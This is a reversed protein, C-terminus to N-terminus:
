VRFTVLGAGGKKNTDWEAPYTKGGYTVKAKYHKSPATSFTVNGKEDTTLEKVLTYEGPPDPGRVWLAVVVGQVPTDKGDNLVVRVKTQGQKAAAQSCALLAALVLLVAVILRVRMQVVGRGRSRAFWAGYVARSGRMSGTCVPVISNPDLEVRSCSRMGPEALVQSTRRHPRAPM